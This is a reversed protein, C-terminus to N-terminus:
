IGGLAYNSRRKGSPRSRNMQQGMATPSIADTGAQMHEPIRISIKSFDQTMKGGCKSCVPSGPGENIDAIITEEEGCKKCKVEYFM